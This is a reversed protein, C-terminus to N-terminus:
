EFLVAISNVIKKIDTSATNVCLDYNAKDGWKQGTLFEYYNKRSKDVSLIKQKLEKASLNEDADGKQRCRRMKSEMDAYFFLRFPKFDSLVYDASRGVIVCDSKEAMEHLIESEKRIVELQQELTPDPESWFTKGITIALLPSPRKEEINRVYEAALSTRKIIENVIEHDYYAIGLKEALRRGAERGGSGFERGITIIRNMSVSGMMGTRCFKRRDCQKIIIIIAYKFFTLYPM